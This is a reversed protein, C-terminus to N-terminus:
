VKGRRKTRRSSGAAEAGASLLSTAIATKANQQLQDNRMATSEKDMFQDLEFNELDGKRIAEFSSGVGGTVGSAGGRVNQSALSAILNRKREIERNRSAFQEDKAQSKLQESKQVGQVLLSAPLAFNAM